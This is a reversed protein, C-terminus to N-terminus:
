QSVPKEKEKAARAAQHDLDAQTDQAQVEEAEKKETVIAEQDAERDEEQIPDQTLDAEQDAAMEVTKKLIVERGADTANKNM